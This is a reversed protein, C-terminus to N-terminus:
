LAELSSQSQASAGDALELPEHEPGRRAVVSACVRCMERVTELILDWMLAQRSCGEAAIFVIYAPPLHAFCGRGEAPWLPSDSRLPGEPLLGQSGVGLGM